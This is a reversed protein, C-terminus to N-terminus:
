GMVPASLNFNAAVAVQRGSTSFNKNVLQFGSDIGEATDGIIIRIGQVRECLKEIDVATVASGAEMAKQESCGTSIDYVDTGPSGTYYQKLEGTFSAAEGGPTSSSCSGACAM